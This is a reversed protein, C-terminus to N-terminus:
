YHHNPSSHLNHYHSHKHRKYNKNSSRRYHRGKRESGSGISTYDEHIEDEEKKVHQPVEDEGDSDEFKSSMTTFRQRREYNLLDLVQNVTLELNSPEGNAKIVATCGEIKSIDADVHFLTKKNHALLYSVSQQRTFPKLMWPVCHEIEELNGHKQRTIFVTHINNLRLARLFFTPYKYKNGSVIRSFDDIVILKKTGKFYENMNLDFKEGFHTKLLEKISDHNPGLDSLRIFYEGEPYFNRKKVENLFHCIFTTKGMGKPGYLNVWTHTNLVDFLETVLDDRRLYLGEISYLSDKIAVPSTDKVKGKGLDCSLSLSDSRKHVKVCDKLVDEIIEITWLGKVTEFSAEASKSPIVHYLNYNSKANFHIQEIADERAGDICHSVKKGSVLKSTFFKLFSYMYERRLYQVMIDYINAPQKNFDFYITIPIECADTFKTIVEQFNNSLVLLIDIHVKDEKNLNVLKRIKEVDIRESKLEPGELVLNDEELYLFDIVLLKCGVNKIILEQLMSNSFTDFHVLIGKDLEALKPIIEERLNKSFNIGGCVPPTQDRLPYCSLFYFKNQYQQRILTNASIVLSKIEKDLEKISHSKSVNLAQRAYVLSEQPQNEYIQALKILAKCELKYSKSEQFIRYADKLKSVDSESIRKREHNYELIVFFIKARLFCLHPSIPNIKQLISQLETILSEIDEYKKHRKVKDLKLTYYRVINFESQYYNRLLLIDVLRRRSL